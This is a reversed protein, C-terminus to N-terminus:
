GGLITGITLGTQACFEPAPLKKGDDPKLTSVEIQGGQTSVFISREGIDTV